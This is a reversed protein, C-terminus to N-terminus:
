QEVRWAYMIMPKHTRYQANWVAKGAKLMKDWDDEVVKGVISGRAPLPETCAGYIM